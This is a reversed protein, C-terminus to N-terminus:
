AREGAQQFLSAALEVKQRNNEAISGDPMVMSNEFGVRVHGGLSIAMELCSAEERDFACVGTPM